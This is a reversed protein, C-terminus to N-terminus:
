DSAIFRGSKGAIKGNEWALMGNVFVYDMGEAILGSKHFDSRDRIHEPAFVNLDAFYGKKILGRKRIKLREAPMASMKRIAEPMTLVKRERVFERIIKPYASFLRPHATKSHEHYLADSIVSAYPLKAVTDVDDPSMSMIIIGVRGAESTLLKSMLECPKIGMKLYIEMFSKGNYDRHERKTLANLIIRELGLSLVYNDWGQYEKTLAEYIAKPKQWDAQPFDPPLLSLLMTAGGHYPYFDVTIDHHERATEIVKIAKFIEKNWNNTGCSKFHSIELPLGARKAIQIAEKVSKVLTDGEGRIHATLVSDYHAAVNAIEAIEDISSFCEPQYMLGLSLGLAGDALAEDVLARAATIETRTFPANIFGKVAARLSVSGLMGGINIPLARATLADRYEAFSPITFPKEGLIPMLMDSMESTYPYPTLGCAGTVATTIGQALEIEGFGDKLAAYDAHRHIDVFGPTILRGSADILVMEDDTTFPMQGIEAIVGDVILVAGIFPENGSGDVILGNKILTKM